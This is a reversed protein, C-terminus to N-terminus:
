KKIVIIILQMFLLKEHNVKAEPDLRLAGKLIKIAEDINGKGAYVKCVFCFLHKINILIYCLLNFTYM